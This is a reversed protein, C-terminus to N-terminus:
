IASMFDPATLITDEQASSNDIESSRELFNRGEPDVLLAARCRFASGNVAVEGQIIQAEVGVDSAVTPARTDVNRSRNLRALSLFCGGPM